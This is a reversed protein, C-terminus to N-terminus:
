LWKLRHKSYETAEEDPLTKYGCGDSSVPSVGLIEYRTVETTTTSVALKIIVTEREQSFDLSGKRNVISPDKTFDGLGRKFESFTFNLFYCTGM